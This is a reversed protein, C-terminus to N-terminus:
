CESHCHAVHIKHWEKKVVGESVSLFEQLNRPEKIGLLKVSEEGQYDTESM